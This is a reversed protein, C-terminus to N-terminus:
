DLCGFYIQALHNSSHGPACSAAMAAPSVGICCLAMRRKRNRYRWRGTV